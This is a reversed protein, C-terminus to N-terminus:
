SISRWRIAETEGHNTHTDYRLDQARIESLVSKAIQDGQEITVEGRQNHAAVLRESLQTAGDVAFQHHQLEHRVLPLIFKSWEQQLTVSESELRPILIEISLQINVLSPDITGGSTNGWDWKLRWSTYADRSKLAADRPGLQRLAKAVEERSEGRVSYSKIQSEIKLAPPKHGKGFASTSLPARLLLAGLGAVVGIRWLINM